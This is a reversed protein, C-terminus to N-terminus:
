SLTNAYQKLCDFYEEPVGCFQIDERKILNIHINKNKKILLNYLPAIYLEKLGSMQEIEIRLEYAERFISISKFFYLGTSCFNSIQVKEATEIVKTSQTNETKAYSWNTGEGYFVELYGDWDYIKKPLRYNPHFTDINYIAIPCNEDLVTNNLGLYVTEAQGQTPKDLIIIEYELIGLNKCEDDIFRRTDFLDRAIFIFKCSKFYYSFSSVSLNFLSKNGVYLMYKPLTFGFNIFRQSLGAMGIVFVM